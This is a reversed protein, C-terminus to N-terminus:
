DSLRLFAGVPLTGAMMSVFSREAEPNGHAAALLDAMAPPPPDLTALQCTLEYAPLVHADRDRQWGAMADEFPQTGDLAADLGSACREADAFADSIGFATCPDKNYAADGVLAWGPGFPKRLYNAVAGGRLRGERRAGGVLEAVEPDLALTRAFHREVDGRNRKLEGHPWAAFVLTLGDHTPILGFARSERIYYRLGVTPLDAYYGYYGVGLPGTSRYQRPRVIKAVTSHRGDAGVVYRARAQMTVGRATRGRVGVVRGESFLLETVTVGERVEAGAQAASQVLMADLVTRRPAYAVDIGASGAPTAALAFPGFDYSYRDIPPCGTGQLRRLVGWRQLAAVGPPHILHTSLTDSPFRARDVVLVRHGRRALLMATPSGACRAGVVIADFM